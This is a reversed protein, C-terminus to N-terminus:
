QPRAIKKASKASGARRLLKALVVSGTMGIVLGATAGLFQAGQSEGCCVAGVIALVGPGLFLGMSSLGLGWGSLTLDDKWDGAPCDEIPCGRCVPYQAEAPERDAYRRM